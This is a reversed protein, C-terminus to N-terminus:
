IRKFPDDAFHRGNQRPRLTNVCRGLCIPIKCVDAIQREIVLKHYFSIDVIGQAYTSLASELNAGLMQSIADSHLSTEWQSPALRSDARTSARTCKFIHWVSVFYIITFCVLICIYWKCFVDYANHLQTHKHFNHMSLDWLMFNGINCLRFFVRLILPHGHFQCVPENRRRKM